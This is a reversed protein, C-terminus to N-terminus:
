QFPESITLDTVAIALPNAQRVWAPAKEIVEFALQASVVQPEGRPQRTGPFLAQREFAIGAKFPPTQLESLVINKVRVQIDDANPLDHFTDLVKQTDRPDLRGVMYTKLFTLAKPYDRDLTSRERSQYNQFFERLHYRIAEQVVSDRLNLTSAADYTMAQARGLEDIQIVLPKLDAYRTVTVLCLGVLGVSLISLLIVAVKLANGATVAAARDELYERHAADLEPTLIHDTTASM